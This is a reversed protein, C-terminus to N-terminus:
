ARDSASAARSLFEDRTNVRPFPEDPVPLHLAACLPGWGDSARWELLREGPIERRVRENHAEFAAISSAADRLDGGFRTALLDAVMRHWDRYRAPADPPLELIRPFITEHASRWWSEPDRLSLVVLAEPFARHLEPFLSAGPWDVCARYEAFLVGWGVPECRVAAHWVPVDDPRQILEIMHYCRGGLLRELGHKLSMTGTRGLGAGIVHLTM